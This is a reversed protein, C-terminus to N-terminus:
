GILLRHENRLKIHEKKHCIACLLMLENKFDEKLNDYRLYYRKHHIHLKEKKGCIRCKNEHLEFIQRKYANTIMRAWYRNNQQYYMNRRYIKANETKSYRRAQERIRDAYKIYRCKESCYKRHKWYSIYEIKCVTCTNKYEAMGITGKVDLVLNQMKKEKGNM